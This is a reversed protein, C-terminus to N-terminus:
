VVGTDGKPDPESLERKPLMRDLIEEEDLGFRANDQGTIDVLFIRDSDDLNAKYVVTTMLDQPGRRSRMVITSTTRAWMIQGVAEQAIARLLSKRRMWHTADRMIRFCILYTRTPPRPNLDAM